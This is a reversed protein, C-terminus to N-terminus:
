INEFFIPKGKEVKGIKIRRGKNEKVSEYDYIENTDLNLYYKNGNYNFAKYNYTKEEQKNITGKNDFDINPVYAYEQNDESVNGFTFCNIDENDRANLECDVAAEKMLKFLGGTVKEKNSAIEFVKEDSTKNQDLRLWSVDEQKYKEDFVSIYIFIEVNRESEELYWKKNGYHSKIRVARGIVQQIRVPNWYPEIIHVQRVNALTIGEAASATALLVKIINGRLNSGKQEIKKKLKPSLSDLDNNYIKKIIDKYEPDETGTYFAFKPKDEDEPKINEFWENKISDYELKYEAYGNALLVLSLIGIGELSRFQSYIFATGPSKELNLFVKKFKDSYEGLNKLILYKNKQNNLKNFAELKEREYIQNKKKVIAKYDDNEFNLENVEDEDEEKITTNKGSPFPREIKEPFVFNCTARSFVRYYSSIKNDQDNKSNKSKRKSVREKDREISRIQKYILTQHSSMVCDVITPGIKQPLLNAKAGKYYSISGLIRKKFLNQNKLESQDKNLFLQNFDEQKTPFCDFYKIEHQRIFYHKKKLDDSLRSIFNDDDIPTQNLPIRKVGMYVQNKYINEFYDSNKTINFTKNIDTDVTDIYPLGKLYSILEEDNGNPPFQLKIKYNPIRGKLINFLYSAEYPYNIIPTGSLLIFRTNKAEMLLKYLGKGISGNGVMMSILNHVEDIIILKNNFYNENGLLWKEINSSRLGNYHIFEFQTRIITKLQNKIQNKELETLQYYNSSRNPIPFWIGMNDKIVNNPISSYNFDQYKEWYQNLKYNESGCKMLEDIYNPELSAPLMIVISNKTSKNKMAEAVAISSCTKGSGLGHYLLLGRYPSEVQIYDRIFKQYLFLEYNNNQESKGKAKYKLFTSDVWNIFKKRNPLIWYQPNILNNFNDKNNNTESSKKLSKNAAPSIDNEKKITKKKQQYSKIAIKLKNNYDLEELNDDMIQYKKNLMYKIMDNNVKGYKEDLESIIKILLNVDLNKNKKLTSM